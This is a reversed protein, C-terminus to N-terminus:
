KTTQAQGKKLKSYIDSFLSQPDELLQQPPGWEIIKGEDMVCIIDCNMVTQIRHAIIFMTNGEFDKNVAEQMMRETHMDINATAEDLIMLRKPNILIRIFSLLQRQGLSLNAGNETIRADLGYKEFESDRYGVKQLKKCIDTNRRKFEASYRNVGYELTPDINERLTGEFFATEQTIIDINTRLAKLDITAIDKGDIIINGSSPELCMWFLKILSTKGAGTRGVVGIKQGSDVNFNLDLLVHKPKNPYMANVDKFKIDGYPILKKSYRTMDRIIYPLCSADAHTYKREHVKFNLYKSEPEINAFDHCRELSVLQTEIMTLGQLMKTLDISIGMSRMLFMVLRDLPFSAKRYFSFYMIVLFGPIQIFIVNILNIRNQYWSELGIALINNKSNEKISEVYEHWMFATKDMVRIESLSKLTSVITNVVPSKSIGQLRVIERKADMQRRQVWTCLAIFIGIPLLIVWGITWVIIIINVFVSGIDFYVQCMFMGVERDLVDIDKTFRNLIRGVPVCELFTSVPAHLIRYTMQAHIKRSLILQMGFVFMSRVLTMVSRNAILFILIWVYDFRDNIDFYEAWQIQYYDILLNTFLLLLVSLMILMMPIVGGTETIFLRLTSMSLNGTLKEELRPGKSGALTFNTTRSLTKDRNEDLNFLISKNRSKRIVEENADGLLGEITKDRKAEDETLSGARSRVIEISDVETEKVYGGDVVFLRDAKKALHLAHTSIIRTKDALEGMFAETMIKNSVSMDLASLPDDLIYIDPDYYILRALALRTRQGGSIASGNEGVFTDLGEPMLHVDFDLQSLRLARELRDEDFPEDLLINKLITTGLIWPTQSIFGVKGQVLFSNKKEDSVKNMEKCLAFLLSSKGSGVEGIFFILEGKKITLNVNKLSFVPNNKPSEEIHGIISVDDLLSQSLSENTLSRSKGDFESHTRIVKNASHENNKHIWNFHANELYIAIDAMSDDVRDTVRTEIEDAHLFQNIRDISVKLDALMNFVMPLQVQLEAFVRLITLAASIMAVSIMEPKLLTMALIFCINTNGHCIWNIFISASNFIATYGLYHLERERRQNIKYQFFNEWAKTKIFKINNLAEEISLIRLDKSKLLNKTIKGRFLTFVLTLCLGFLFTALILWSVWGLYITLLTVGFTLQFIYASLMAFKAVNVVKQADTQIYNTIQSTSHASKNLLNFRFIKDYILCSICNSLRLAMRESKFTFYNLIISNFRTVIVILVFYMLILRKGELSHEANQNLKDVVLGFLFPSGQVLGASFVSLLLLFILEFKSHLLMTKYLSGNSTFIAKFTMFNAEVNDKLPLDTHDSQQFGAEGNVPNRKKERDIAMDVECWSLNLNAWYTSQDIKHPTDM